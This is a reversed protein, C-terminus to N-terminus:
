FRDRSLSALLLLYSSCLRPFGYQFVRFSMGADHVVFDVNWITHRGRNSQRFLIRLFSEEHAHRLVFCRRLDLRNGAMRDRGDGDQGSTYSDMHGVCFVGLGAIFFSALDCLVCVFVHAFGGLACMRSERCYLSCVLRGRGVFPYCCSLDGTVAACLNLADKCVM